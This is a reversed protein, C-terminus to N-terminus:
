LIMKIKRFNVFTKAKSKELFFNKDKNKFSVKMRTKRIEALRAERGLRRKKTISDEEVKEVKVENERKLSSTPRLAFNLPDLDFNEPLQSGSSTPELKPILPKVDKVDKVDTDETKQKEVEPVAERRAELVEKLVKAVKSREAEEQDMWNPIEELKGIIKPSENFLCKAHLWKSKKWMQFDPNM